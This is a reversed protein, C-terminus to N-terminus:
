QGEVHQKMVNAAESLIDTLSNMADFADQSIDGVKIYQDGMTVKNDDGKTYTERNGIAADHIHGEAQIRMNGPTYHTMEADKTFSTFAGSSHQFGASEVAGTSESASQDTWINLSGLNMSSALARVKTDSGDIAAPQKPNPGYGAYASAWEAAGYSAAFYVPFLPNGEQFFCWVFAGPTPYAFVGQASSFPRPTPESATTRIVQSVNANKTHQTVKSTDELPGDINAGQRSFQTYQSQEPPTLFRYQVGHIDPSVGTVAIGDSGVTGGKGTGYVLSGGLSTVAGATLDLGSAAWPAPGSDVIPAIITKNTTPNYVEVLQNKSAAVSGFTSIAVAVPISVGVLTTNNTNAGFAGRGNDGADKYGFVSGGAAIYSKTPELQQIPATTDAYVNSAKVDPKNFYFTGAAASYITTIENKIFDFTKTFPSYIANTARDFATPTSAGIIPSASDAWPLIKELEKVIGPNLQDINGFQIDTGEKNWHEYLAPMIHPIFIKVRGRQEPDASNIVM